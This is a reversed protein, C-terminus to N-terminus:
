DDSLGALARQLIEDQGAGVSGKTEVSAVGLEILDDNRKMILEKSQRSM